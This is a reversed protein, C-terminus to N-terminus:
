LLVGKLNLTQYVIMYNVKWHCIEFGIAAMDAVNATKGYYKWNQTSKNGIRQDFEIRESVCVTQNESDELQKEAKAM